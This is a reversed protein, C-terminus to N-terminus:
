NKKKEYNIATRNVYLEQNAIIARGGKGARKYEADGKSKNKQQKKTQPNDM